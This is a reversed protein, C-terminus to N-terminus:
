IGILYLQANCHPLAYLSSLPPVAVERLERRRPLKALAVIGSVVGCHGPDPTSESGGTACIGGAQPVHGWRPRNHVCQAVADFCRSFYWQDGDDSWSIEMAHSGTTRLHSVIRLSGRRRPALVSVGCRLVWHLVNAAGQASTALPAGPGESLGGVGPTCAHDHDTGLQTLVQACASVGSVVPRIRPARSYGRSEGRGRLHPMAVACVGCPSRRCVVAAACAKCRCSDQHLLGLVGM